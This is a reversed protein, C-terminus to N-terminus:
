TGLGEKLTTITCKQTATVVFTKIRIQEELNSNTKRFEEAMVGDVMTNMPTAINSKM